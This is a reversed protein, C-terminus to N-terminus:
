RRRRSAAGIGALGALMLALASPEPVSTTAVDGDRVAWALGAGMWRGTGQTGFGLDFRWANAGDDSLIIAETGLWYPIHNTSGIGSPLNLIEVGDASTNWECRADVPCKENRSGDPNVYSGNGLNVHFMYALESTHPDVNAGYRYAEPGGDHYDPQGWENLAVVTESWYGNYTMDSVTMSPLRWDDYGGYTLTSTWIGANLWNLYGEDVEAHTSELNTYDFGSTVMYNADQLWTLDQDTDYIMGNGRDILIAQTGSSLGLLLLSMALLAVGKKGMKKM